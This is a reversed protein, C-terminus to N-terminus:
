FFKQLVTVLVFGAVLAFTAPKEYGHAHTEPIMEDSIVYLMAGGAVALLFPVSSAFVSVLALGALVSVVNVAAIGFSVAVIRSPRVGLLFLPAVIVFAEPVNQISLAGAVVLVDGAEETGFSVGAALGEPIKHLAIAATFLLSKSVSGNAHHEEPEIGSIRHLHPLLRDLLSILGAGAFVGATPLILATGTGAFAPALLGLLAAALMVGAAFGLIVDQRRHSVGRVCLGGLVGLVSSGAVSLLVILLVNTL